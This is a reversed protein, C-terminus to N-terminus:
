CGPLLVGLSLGSNRGGKEEGVVRSLTGKKDSNCELDGVEGM